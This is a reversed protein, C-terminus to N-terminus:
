RQASQADGYGGGQRWLATYVVGLAQHGARWHLARVGYRKQRAGGHM